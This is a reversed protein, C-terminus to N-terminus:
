FLRRRPTVLVFCLGGIVQRAKKGNVM